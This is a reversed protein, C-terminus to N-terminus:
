HVFVRKLKLCSEVTPDRETFQKSIVPVRLEAKLEKRAPYLHQEKMKYKPGKRADAM